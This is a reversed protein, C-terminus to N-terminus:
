LSIDKNQDKKSDPNNLRIRNIARAANKQAILEKKAYKRPVRDAKLEEATSFFEIKM